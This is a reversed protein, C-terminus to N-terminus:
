IQFLNFKKTLWMMKSISNRDTCSILFFFLKHNLNEYTHGKGNLLLYNLIFSSLLVM